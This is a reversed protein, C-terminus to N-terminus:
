IILREEFLLNNKPEDDTSYTLQYLLFCSVARHENMRCRIGANLDSEKTIFCPPILDSYQMQIANTPDTSSHIAAAHSSRYPASQM